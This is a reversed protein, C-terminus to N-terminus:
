NNKILLFLLIIVYIFTGLFKILIYISSYLSFFKPWKVTTKQKVSSMYIFGWGYYVKFYLKNFMSIYNYKDQNLQM